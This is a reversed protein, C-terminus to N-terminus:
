GAKWALIALAVTAFMAMVQVGLWPVWGPRDLSHRRHRRSEAFGAVVGLALTAGAAGWLWQQTTM